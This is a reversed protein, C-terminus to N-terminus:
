TTVPLLCWPTSSVLVEDAELARELTLNETHCPINLEGALERLIEQSIGGLVKEPQPTLIAGQEVIFFNGSNTETLHNNEDLLVARSGPDTQRAEQDALYWHLRSRYKIRPDLIDTPIQRTSPVVLKGGTHYLNAWLEFALPVTHVCLTPEAARSRQEIPLYSPNQGATAFIVIGLDHSAPILPANHAVLEEVIERLRALTFNQGFGTKQLSNQFRQLHKELEYPEHHVTRIMETVTAAQVIGLDFVSLKTESIPLLQGNLWALPETM